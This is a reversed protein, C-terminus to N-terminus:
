APDPAPEAAPPRPLIPLEDVTVFTADLDRLRAIIERMAGITQDPWTHQLVVAGDGRLRVEDLITRVVDAASRAPEWDESTVNWHVDRYGLGALTAIVRPDDAGAGFPCRFWPKPDVGAHELIAAEAERIDTVLGADSLLPMRAHYFSHSGVLHGAEVIRRATMPYAEAWRGQIFVTARLGQDALTELLREANGSAAPRDPHEADFTLAVRLSV